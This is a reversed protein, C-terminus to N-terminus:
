KGRLKIIADIIGQTGIYVIALNVWDTSPILQKYMFFTAILFVTLKKSIVINFFRDILHKM